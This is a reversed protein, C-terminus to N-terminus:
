SIEAWAEATDAMPVTSPEPEEAETPALSLHYEAIRVRVRPELLIQQVAQDGLYVHNLSHLDQLLWAGQETQKLQAPRRSVSPHPLYVDCTPERGILLRPRGLEVRRRRGHADLIELYDMPASGPPITRTVDPSTAREVGWSLRPRLLPSLPNRPHPVT